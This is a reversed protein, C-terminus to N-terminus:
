AAICWGVILGAEAMCVDRSKEENVTEQSGANISNPVLFMIEFV